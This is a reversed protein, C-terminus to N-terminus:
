LCWLLPASECSMVSVHCQHFAPLRVRAPSSIIFASQFVKNGYCSFDWLFWNGATSLLRSWMHRTLFALDTAERYREYPAM